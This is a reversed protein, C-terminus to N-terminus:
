STITYFFVKWIQNNVFDGWDQEQTVHLGIIPHEKQRRVRSIHM